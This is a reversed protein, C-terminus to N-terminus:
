DGNVRLFAIPLPKEVNLLTFVLSIKNVFLTHIPPYITEEIKTLM